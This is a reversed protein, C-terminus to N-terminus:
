SGSLTWPTFTGLTLVDLDSEALRYRGLETVRLFHSEELEGLLAECIEAELGWLRQAQAKTLQLGPMEKFEGKIVTM